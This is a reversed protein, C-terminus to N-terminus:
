STPDGATGAHFPCASRESVEAYDYAAESDSTKGKGSWREIDIRFVSTRALDKAEIGRYDTGPRFGPAYKAMMLDLAYRAEDPDDVVSASGELVVSTYEVSWDVAADAPLLRGMESVCFSVRPGADMARRTEGTRAAHLYVAGRVPDFSFLNPVAKPGDDGVLALVGLPARLLLDHISQPTRIARDRRRPERFSVPTTTM